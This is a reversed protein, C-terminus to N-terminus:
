LIWHGKELSYVLFFFYQHCIIGGSPISDIYRQPNRSQSFRTKECCFLGRSGGMWVTSPESIRRSFWRKSTYFCTFLPINVMDVPSNAPNRFWWCYWWARALIYSTVFINMERFRWFCCQTFTHLNLKLRHVGWDGLGIKQLIKRKM